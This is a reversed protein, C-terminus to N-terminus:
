RGLAARLYQATATEMESVQEPTGEAIVLGGHPGAGPGLEVIWDCRALLNPDHEVVMVSHSANVVEDLADALRGVDRVHLGLTPEDLLYLTPQTTKKALESALKLRQAEGGSMAMAPQRVVLYGLGLRQAADCPRAIAPVDHWGQALEDITGAEVETLTRGRAVVGRVEARYGSGNCVDCPYTVSPLFGMNEVVQGGACADCGTNFDSERVGAAQAEESAAYAKRLAPILGLFHGPSSIGARAQDAIVTRPPAGIIADHAGPEFQAIQIAQQVKPPALAVGVTDIMLTSKGSGSVGCVGTMVGLPLKLSDIRLTNARAGRIELWGAPTRRVRSPVPMGAIADATASDSAVDRRPGAYVLRGGDAGAGPGIEVVHDARALVTGDHEVAVVTNGADRLDELAEVLAEVERPHLGRSPEDLLVTMGLLRGGLVSALRLRQAEGASLTASLRDLHLYGLGVRRLFLLRQQALARAEEALEDAKMTVKAVVAELDGLPMTFLASRDLGDLTIALYEPRLRKGACQACTATMTYRGGHDWNTMTHVIGRWPRQQQHGSKFRKVIPDPDGYLVANRAAESMAEWPTTRCDFGYREGLTILAGDDRACLERRWQAEIGLAGASISVDPKVIVKSFDIERVVGRGRCGVCLAVQSQANVHRAELVGAVAGCGRCSWASDAANTVRLVEGGCQLCRREGGRSLMTAVLRGIDSASGVTVTPRDIVQQLSTNVPRREAGIAVTPGLGQLSAVDAEPGERTGQREYMSLCELLRRTAEAELVDRVLSSKGSGSVGTVVTFKAKPIDANVRRLNNAAAGRIRIVDSVRPRTRPAIRPSPQKASRRRPPGCHLLKGGNPGGGPGLQVIWDAAAVVDPQHEIVIVTCGRATLGDLVSVLRALDAPHLGTTPEDLVVLDGPRARTLEKALRVRQAEGGSLTPSPQGLALYGLGVDALSDLIRCAVRDSSFVARADDVSLELADAITLETNGLIAPLALVEPKYRRGGCPECEVWVHRGPTIAVEVAGMGECTSCAGEPRNFTFLSPSQGTAAAFADRVRDFLKTYTAANSRPNNGIPSQDVVLARSVNGVFRDCGVPETARASALVVDRILTTKGAGSPGTVATLLGVPFRCDIADLNRARAGSVELFSDGAKKPERALAADRGSFLRGSVTDAGWLAAPAGQFVRRGGHPGAGPGIEVVDDANAVATADHDVILVPGPLRGVVKFLTEIDSRHLGISPEDLVHLLDELRGAVVVALRARQSEGRSLTTMPRNLTLHDLGLEVLPRLRRRLEDRLRRGSSGIEAGELVACADGATLSLLMEITHGAITHSSTDARQEPRFAAAPLPPVWRRCGPCIPSSLLSRGAIEVEHGGWDDAGALEERVRALSAGEPLEGAVIVIDHPKSAVLGRGNWPRGDVAIRDRGLEETLLALLRRHTGRVGRVLPVRVPGHLTAAERVREDGTLARVATGCAPCRVDAFKSFLLRFFPLAGVASAVTSNPNRNLVNQAISVAPGLGAIQRVSAPRMRAFQAGTLALADLYLRRAEHYITDFVLSSKGSGSVGVVATLGPGIAVELDRLNHESAGKVEIVRDADAM